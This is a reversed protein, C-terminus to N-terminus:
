LFFRLHKTKKSNQAGLTRTRSPTTTTKAQLKRARIADGEREECQRLYNTKTVISFSIAEQLEDATYNSPTHKCTANTAYQEGVKFLKGMAADLSWCPLHMLLPFYTVIWEVLTDDNGDYEQRRADM